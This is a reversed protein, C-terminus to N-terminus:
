ALLTDAHALGVVGAGAIGGLEIRRGQQGARDIDIASDNLTVPGGLFIMSRGEQVYLGEIGINTSSTERNQRTIQIAGPQRQSALFGSPDGVLTLLNDRSGTSTASFQGNPFTIADLTTAVFSGTIGDIRANPGFVIGNPNILFLNVPFFQSTQLRGNIDSASKGTVRILINQIGFGSRFAAEENANLNFQSFSHFLNKGSRDTQGQEQRIVYQKVGSPLIRNAPEGAPGLTGDFVVNQAIASLPFLAFLPAIAGTM